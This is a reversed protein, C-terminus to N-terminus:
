MELHTICPLLLRNQGVVQHLVVPRMAHHLLVLDLQWGKAHYLWHQRPITKCMASHVPATLRM